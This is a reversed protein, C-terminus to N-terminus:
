RLTSRYTWFIITLWLVALYISLIIITYRLVSEWHDLWGPTDILFM